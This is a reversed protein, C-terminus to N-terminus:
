RWRAAVACLVMGGPGLFHPYCALTAGRCINSCLLWRWVDPFGPSALDALPLRFLLWVKAAHDNASVVLSRCGRAWWSLGLLRLLVCCVCPFAFCDFASSARHLASLVRRSVSACCEAILCPLLPLDVGRLSRDNCVCIVRQYCVSCIAIYFSLGCMSELSDSSILSRLFNRVFDFFIRFHWRACRLAFCRSGCINRLYLVLLVAETATILNCVLDGPLCLRFIRVRWLKEVLFWNYLVMTLSQSWLIGTEFSFYWLSWTSQVAIAAM